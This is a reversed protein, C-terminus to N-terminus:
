LHARCWEVHLWSWLMTTFPLESLVWGSYALMAWWLGVHRQALVAMAALPLLVLRVVLLGCWLLARFVLVTAALVLTKLQGSFGQSGSCWTGPGCFTQKYLDAMQQQPMSQQHRLLRGNSSSSGGHKQLHTHLALIHRGFLRCSPLL